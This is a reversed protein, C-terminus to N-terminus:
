WRWPNLSKRLPEACKERKLHRLNRKWGAVRGCNSLLRFGAAASNSAVRSPRRWRISRVDDPHIPNFLITWVPSCIIAAVPIRRGCDMSAKVLNEFLAVYSTPEDRGIEVSALGSLIRSCEAFRIAPRALPM